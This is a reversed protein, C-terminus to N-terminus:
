GGPLGARRAGAHSLASSHNIHASHTVSADSLDAQASDAPVRDALTGIVTLSQSETRAIRMSRGIRM